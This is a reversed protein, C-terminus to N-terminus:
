RITAREGCASGPRGGRPGGGPDPGDAAAATVDIVHGGAQSSPPTWEIRGTDEDIPMGGVLPHLGPVEGGDHVGALGAGNAMDLAVAEREALGGAFAGLADGGQRLGAALRNLARYSTFLVFIGGDTLAAMAIVARQTAAAHRPDDDRSPPPLDSPIVVLAQSRFDFPSPYLAEAVGAASRADAVPACRVNSFSSTAWSRM